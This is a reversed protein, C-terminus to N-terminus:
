IKLIFSLKFSIDFCFWFLFFSLFFYTNSKSDLTRQIHNELICNMVQEIAFYKTNSSYWISWKLKHKVYTTTTLSSDRNNTQKKKLFFSTLWNWNWFFCFCFQIFNVKKYFLLRSSFYIDISQVIAFTSWKMERKNSEQNIWLLNIKSSWSNNTKGIKLKM